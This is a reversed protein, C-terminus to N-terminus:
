MSFTSSVRANEPINLKDEVMRLLEVSNSVSSIIDENLSHIDDVM